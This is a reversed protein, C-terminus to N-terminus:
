NDSWCMITDNLSVKVKYVSKGSRNLSYTNSKCKYIHGM